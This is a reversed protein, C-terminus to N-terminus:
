SNIIWLDFTGYRHKVSSPPLLPLFREDCADSCILVVPLRDRNQDPAQKLEQKPEQKLEQKLLAAFSEPTLLRHAADPFELGYTLEGPSTLYIDQRKLVWAVSGIIYSDAIVIANAPIQEIHQRILVEPVKRQAIQEPFALHFVFLLPLITFAVAGIRIEQQKVTFALFGAALVLVFSLSLSVYSMFEHKAYASRGLDLAQMLMLTILLLGIVSLNVALGAQYWSTRERQLYHHLGAAILIALPPFCPLVYTALKGSSISFFLFPLVLWLWLFRFLPPDNAKRGSEQLGKAAAPILTLWPFALVPLYGLYYYFPAKHQANPASFRQIHEVWFFYRWFDAERSQVLIAWPLVVLLAVFVVVWGYSMLSRWKGQWLMWPVLVLVPIALALFGKTLFALGLCFGSAVWFLVAQKTKDATAALYFCMIGGGLLLTLLNDLVNITGVAYVEMFSLQILAAYLAIRRNRFTRRAFLFVLLTTLGVALASPLRVAFANEGFVAISVANMWYGLPPKEFYRLGNYRPVVWDGSNLMERPIEAYRSEDPITLPRVGLPFLYMVLYFVVIGVALWWRSRDRTTRTAPGITDSLSLSTM